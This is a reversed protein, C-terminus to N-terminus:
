FYKGFSRSHGLRCCRLRRTGRFQDCIPDKVALTNGKVNETDGGCIDKKDKASVDCDRQRERRNGDGTLRKPHQEDGDKKTRSASHQRANEVQELAHSAKGNKLRKAGWPREPESSGGRAIQEGIRRSGKDRAPQDFANGSM